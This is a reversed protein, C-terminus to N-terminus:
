FPMTVVKQVTEGAELMILETVPTGSSGPTGAPANTHNVQVDLIAPYKFSFTAIGSFDTEKSAPLYKALEGKGQTVGWQSTLKVVAGSLPSGNANVVKIVAICTEDKRKCSVPLLLLLGVVPM